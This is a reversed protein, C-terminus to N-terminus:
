LIGEHPIDHLEFEQVPIPIPPKFIIDFPQYEDRIPDAMKARVSTGRAQGRTKSIIQAIKKDTLKTVNVKCPQFSYAECLFADERLSRLAIPTESLCCFSVNRNM